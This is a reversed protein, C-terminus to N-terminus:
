PLLGQEAPPARRGEVGTDRCVCVAFRKPHLSLQLIATLQGGISAPWDAGLIHIVIPRARPPTQTCRPRGPTSGRCRRRGASRDEFGDVAAVAPEGSGAWRDLAVVMAALSGQPRMRYASISFCNMRSSRQDPSRLCLRSRGGEGGCTSSGLFVTSVKHDTSQHAVNKQWTVQPTLIKKV